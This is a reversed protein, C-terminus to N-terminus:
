FVLELLVLFYVPLVIDLTQEELLDLSRSWIGIRSASLPLADNIREHILVKCSGDSCDTHLVFSSSIM